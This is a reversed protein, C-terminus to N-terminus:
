FPLLQSAKINLGKCINEVSLVSLNREGREVEAFYNTSINCLKSAEEQSLNKQERIEKLRKGLEKLTEADTIDTM